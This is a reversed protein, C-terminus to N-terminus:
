FTFEKKFVDTDQLDCLEVLDQRNMLSFVTRLNDWLHQASSNITLAGLFSQAAAVYNRLSLYSIGLNARARTYTPKIELARFYADIAEESRSGNAQCSYCCLTMMFSFEQRSLKRFEFLFLSFSLQQAQTAGLKNWLLYDNPRKTLASKFCDIAKGYDCSLNFLLGLAIQVDPDPDTPQRRAAQFKIYCFCCGL